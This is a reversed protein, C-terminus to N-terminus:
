RMLPRPRSSTMSAMATRASATTTTTPQRAELVAIRENILNLYNGLKATRRGLLSLRNGLKVSKRGLLRLFATDDDSGEEYDKDLLRLFAADEEDEDEEEEEPDEKDDDKKYNGGSACKSRVVDHVQKDTMNTMFFNVIHNRKFGLDSLKKNNNMHLMLRQMEPDFGWKNHIKKKVEAVDDYLFVGGVYFTVGHMESSAGSRLSLLFPANEDFGEDSPPDSDHPNEDDEEDEDDDEDDDEEDKDPDDDDKKPDENGDDGIRRHSAELTDHVNTVALMVREYLPMSPADDPDINAPQTAEYRPSTYPVDGPDEYRPSTTEKTDAAYQKKKNAEVISAVITKLELVINPATMKPNVVEGTLQELIVMLEMKNLIKVAPM